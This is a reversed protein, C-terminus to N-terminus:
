SSGVKKKDKDKQLRHVDCVTSSSIRMLMRLAQECHVEPASIDMNWIGKQLWTEEQLLGQLTLSEVVHELCNARLCPSRFTICPELQLNAWIPAARRSPPIDFTSKATKKAVSIHDDPSQMQTMMDQTLKKSPLTLRTRRLHGSNELFRYVSHCRTLDRLTAFCVDGCM